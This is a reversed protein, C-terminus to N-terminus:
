TWHGWDGHFPDGFASVAAAAEDVVAEFRGAAGEDRWGGAAVELPPRSGAGATMWGWGGGDPDSTGDGASSESDAVSEERSESALGPPGEPEAAAAHWLWGAAQYGSVAAAAAAAAAPNSGAEESDHQVACPPGHPLLLLLEEPLDEEATAEEELSHPSHPPLHRSGGATPTEGHTPALVGPFSALVAPHPWPTHAELLPAPQLDTSPSREYYTPQAHFMRATTTPSHAQLPHPHM